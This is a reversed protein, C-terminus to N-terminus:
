KSKKTTEIYILFIGIGGALLSLVLRSLGYLSMDLKLNSASVFYVASIRFLVSFVFLIISVLFQKKPAIKAGAYVFILSTLISSLFKEIPAMDELPMEIMSGKVLTFYLLWHLPFLVLIGCLLAGPIVAVWRGIESIKNISEESM